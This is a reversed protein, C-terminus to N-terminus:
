LISEDMSDRTKSAPTKWVKSSSSDAQPEFPVRCDSAFVIGRPKPAPYPRDFKVFSIVPWAWKSGEEPWGFLADQTDVLHRKKDARFKAESKYDFSKGFIITGVIRAEFKGFKGPTEIVAIEIGEYKTPMPYTRTEVVKKGTLLLDAWPTQVNFGPLTRMKM